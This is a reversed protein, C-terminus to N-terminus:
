DREANSANIADTDTPFIPLRQCSKREFVLEDGYQGVSVDPDPIIPFHLIDTNAEKPAAFEPNTFAPVGQEGPDHVGDGNADNGIVCWRVPVSLVTSPIIAQSVHGLNEPPSSSSSCSVSAEAALLGGFLSILLHRKKMM